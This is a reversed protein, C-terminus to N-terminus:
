RTSNLHFGHDAPIYPSIHPGPALKQPARSIESRHLGAPRNLHDFLHGNFGPQRALTERLVRM